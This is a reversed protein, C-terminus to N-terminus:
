SSSCIENQRSHAHHASSPQKEILLDHAQVAQCIQGQGMEPLLFAIRHGVPEICHYLMPKLLCPLCVRCLHPINLTASANRWMYAQWQVCVLAIGIGCCQEEITMLGVESM